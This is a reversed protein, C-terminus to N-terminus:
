CGGDDGPAPTDSDPSSADRRGHPIFFVLRGGGERAVRVDGGAAQVLATVEALRVAAADDCLFPHASELTVVAGGPDLTLSATIRRGEPIGELLQEIGAHIAQQLRLPNCDVLRVEGKPLFAELETQRLRAQRSALFVAREVVDRADCAAPPEDV